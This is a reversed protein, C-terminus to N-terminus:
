TVTVLKAANWKCLQSTASTYGLWVACEVKFMIAEGLRCSLILHGAMCSCHASIIQGDVKSIVWAEHANDPSHQSTNVKAKLIVGRTKGGGFERSLATRVYGSQFYNYAEM